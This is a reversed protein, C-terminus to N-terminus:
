SEGRRKGVESRKALDSRKVMNKVLEGTKTYIRKTYVNPSRPTVSPVGGVGIRTQGPM